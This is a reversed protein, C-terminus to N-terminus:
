SATYPAGPKTIMVGGGLLGIVILRRYAALWSEGRYLLSYITHPSHSASMVGGRGTHEDPLGAEKHSRGKQAGETYM